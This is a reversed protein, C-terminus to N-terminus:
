EDAEDDDNSVKVKLKRNTDMDVRVDGYEYHELDAEIMAEILGQKIGKHEEAAKSWQKSAAKCRLALRHIKDNKPMSEAGPLHQQSPLREGNDEPVKRPRGRGRKEGGKLVTTKAM